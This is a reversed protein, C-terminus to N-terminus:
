SSDASSAARQVRMVELLEVLTTLTNWVAADAKDAHATLAADAAQELADAANAVGPCLFIAAAGSMRHSRARLGEFLAGEHGKSRMLEAGLSILQLCEL